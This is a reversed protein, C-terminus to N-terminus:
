LWPAVDQKEVLQVFGDYNIVQIGELVMHIGRA